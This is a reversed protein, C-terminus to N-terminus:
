STRIEIRLNSLDPKTLIGITRELKPDAVKLRAWIADKEVNESASHLLIFLANPLALYFEYIKQCLRM